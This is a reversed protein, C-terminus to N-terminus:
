GAVTTGAGVTSSVLLAGGFQEVRDRLYNLGRGPPRVGPDFGRGDDRVEFRVIGASRRVAVRARSAGAHKVVNQIAEACCFYVCTEIAPPYREEACRVDIPLPAHLARTRLMARLGVTALLQPAGGAVATRIEEMARGLDARAARLLSTLEESEHALAEALAIRTGLAVLSQQAGDHLDRVFRRREQDLLQAVDIERAQRSSM